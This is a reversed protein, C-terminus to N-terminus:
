GPTADVIGNLRKSCNERFHVDFCGHYRDQSNGDDVTRIREQRSFVAWCGRSGRHNLPCGTSRRLPTRAHTASPTSLTLDRCLRAKRGPHSGLRLGRRREQVHGTLVPWNCEGALGVSCAPPGSRRHRLRSATRRVRGSYAGGTSFGPGASCLSSITRECLHM